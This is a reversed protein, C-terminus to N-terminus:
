EFLNRVCRLIAIYEVTQQMVFVDDCAALEVGYYAATAYKMFCVHFDRILPHYHLLVVLDTEARALERLDNKNWEHNQKHCGSKFSFLGDVLNMLDMYATYVQAFEPVNALGIDHSHMKHIVDYYKAMRCCLCKHKRIITEIEDLVTDWQITALKASSTADMAFIRLSCVFEM